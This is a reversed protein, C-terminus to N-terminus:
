NYKKNTDDEEEDEPNIYIHRLKNGLLFSMIFLALTYLVFAGAQFPSGTLSMGVGSSVFGIFAFIFGLINLPMTQIARKKTSKKKKKKQDSALKHLKEIRNEPIMYETEQENM